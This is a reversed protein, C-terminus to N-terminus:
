WDALFKHLNEGGPADLVRFPAIVETVHHTASGVPHANTDADLATTQCMQGTQASPDGHWAEQSAAFGSLLSNVALLVLLSPLRASQARVRRLDLAAAAWAM